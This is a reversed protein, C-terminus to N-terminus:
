QENPDMENTKIKLSSGHAKTPLSATAMSIVGRDRCGDVNGKEQQKMTDYM